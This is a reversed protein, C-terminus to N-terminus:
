SVSVEELASPALEPPEHMVAETELLVSTNSSNGKFYKYISKGVRAAGKVLAKAAKFPLTFVATFCVETDHDDSYLFLASRVLCFWASSLSWMGVTVVAVGLAPAAAYIMLAMVGVTTATALLVPLLPPRQKKKPFALAAKSSDSM